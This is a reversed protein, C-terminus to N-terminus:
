SNVALTFNVLFFNIFPNEATRELFDLWKLNKECGSLEVLKKIITWKTILM